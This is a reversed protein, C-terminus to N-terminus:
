PRPLGARTMLEVDYGEKRIRLDIYQLCSVATVFPAVFAATVVASTAQSLVLLLPSEPDVGGLMTLAMTGLSIPTSLLAGAVQTLIATLLAIGFTRWFAKRTLRASRGLSEWIRRNELMLSPVALYYVRVWFVTLAALFLPVTVLGFWFLGWGDLVGIAVVWTGVYVGAVVAVLVGLLFTLGILRWRQGRTAAWAQGLTLRQGLTAAMTVHAIMGTVLVLGISQLVLGLMLSGMAGLFGVLEDSSPGAPDSMSSTLDVTTALGATVAVPIAMAVATVLVASGVTAGPNYRIIKFAADYFDGLTLPRLPVAGPKHAAGSWGQPGTPPPPPAWSPPAPQPGPAPQSGPAPWSQDGPTGGPPPYSGSM